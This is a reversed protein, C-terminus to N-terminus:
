CGEHDWGDPKFQEGSEGTFLFIVPYAKPTSIGAQRQGGYNEHINYM